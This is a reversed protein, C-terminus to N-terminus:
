LSYHYQMFNHTKSKAMGAIQEETLQEAKFLFFFPFSRVSHPATPVASPLKTHLLYQM